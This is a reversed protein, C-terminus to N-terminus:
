AGLERWSRGGGRSRGEIVLRDRKRELSRTPPGRREGIRNRNIRQSKDRAREREILRREESGAKGNGQKMKKEEKRLRRAACQQIKHAIASRSHYCCQSQGATKKM